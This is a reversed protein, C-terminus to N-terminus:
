HKAVVPLFFTYNKVTLTVPLSIHPDMFDTNNIQIGGSYDGFALGTSDFIVDVSSCGGAPTTGNIPNESLWPIGPLSIVSGEIIFPMGQQSSGDLAPQWASNSGLYQMANGTITQGLHSIPPAWPGSYSASGDSIWEIWYTGAPLTVGASAVDAFIPRSSDLLNTDIVRYINSWTSSVMRNTTLDGFLVSSGPDNPPGDWIQYYVATLPSPSTPAGTQYAFFTIQDIHWGNPDTIFFDDAIHNNASLQHGFGYTYLGLASQVASADAGGFGGGPQTVLPGNDWLVAEPDGFGSSGASGQLGAGVQTLIGEFPTSRDSQISNVIAETPLPVTPQNSLIRIIPVEMISWNLAAGGANCIQMPITTQRDPPQTAHLTPAIVEIVPPVPCALQVHHDTFGTYSFGGTSGGLKFIENNVTVASTRFVAASALTGGDV